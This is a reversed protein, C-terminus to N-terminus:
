ESATNLVANDQQVDTTEAPAQRHVVTGLVVIAMHRAVAAM